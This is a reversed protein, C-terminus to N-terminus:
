GKVILRFNNKEVKQLHLMKKNCCKAWYRAGERTFFHRTVICGLNGHISATWFYSRALGAALKQELNM